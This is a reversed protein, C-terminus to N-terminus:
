PAFVVDVWYNSANFTSTPFAAAAGYAFVGNASTSDALAHLPPSDVGNALNPGNVSYHGSPALYGAVYTTEAQIAVPSPFTVQQWGSATEGGFTAQALLTGTSSWLSGVHTGTNAASKYFRVGTIQGAVDSRFKVGLEVSGGDGDDVTGPTAQGFITTNSPPATPTVSNSKASEPGTGISNVATVTFSYATGNVLSGVTAQTSSGSVTTVAQANAGIYPTIRYSTISSGGDNAPATWNVTAQESGASASIATPAGPATPATPTVSNSH